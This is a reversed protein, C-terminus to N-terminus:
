HVHGHGTGKAMLSSRRIADGGRVVLRQGPVLREVLMQDGQREIVDIEQRVFREGALQLYVVAVGGDDVLASTPIVLGDRSQTSLVQADMTTGLVLGTMAPAELLAIAAGTERSVEPAVSVLRVGDEIRLTGLEPDTLVVGRIGDSAFQHAQAPPLSIELWVLDTRVMRALIDGAAVAAGPSANIHAIEGAFPARLSLGTGGTGGARASRAAELDRTAATQRADLTEVRVGVAEVERQSIAELALLEELRAHRARTSALEAALTTVEATLSALSRDAAVLPVVQFLAESRELRLGAFPWTGAGPPPQLVGDIPSTVLAEGGAPPRVHAMGAVSRALRGSRVWDTGFDSRWQEEKLFTVPQGADTGGRPAPAVVLGGPQDTTGVKVKGGRIEESADNTRVHFSLDFEGPTSPEITVTFIGPHTPQDAGFVERGAPGTLVIEVSGSTLPAFDSLRTVHTFAVATTGAALPQIEPFIEFLQGWVTVSWTSEPPTSAPEDHAEPTSPAVCSALCIGLAVLCGTRLSVLDTAMVARTRALIMHTVTTAMPISVTATPTVITTMRSKNFLM